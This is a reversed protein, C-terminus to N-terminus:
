KADGVPWSHIEGRYTPAIVFQSDSSFAVDNLAEPAVLRRLATITAPDLLVTIPRKQPM